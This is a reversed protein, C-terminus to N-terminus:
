FMVLSEIVGAQEGASGALQAMGQPQLPRFTNFQDGGAAATIVGIVQQGQIQGISGVAPRRHVLV